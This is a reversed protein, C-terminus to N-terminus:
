YSTCTYVLKKLTLKFSYNVSFYFSDSLQRVRLDYQIYILKNGLWFLNPSIFCKIQEGISHIPAMMRWYSMFVDFFEMM